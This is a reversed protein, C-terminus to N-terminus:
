HTMSLGQKGKPQNTKNQSKPLSFMSFVHHIERTEVKVRKQGVAACGICHIAAHKHPSLQMHTPINETIISTNTYPFASKQAVLLVKFTIFKLIQTFLNTM